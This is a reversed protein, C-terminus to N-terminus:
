ELSWSRWYFISLVYQANCIWCREFSITAGVIDRWPKTLVTQTECFVIWMAIGALSPKLLLIRMYLVKFDYRWIKFDVHWRLNVFEQLVCYGMSVEPSVFTQVWSDEWGGVRSESRCERSSFCMSPVTTFLLMSLGARVLLGHDRKQPRLLDNSTWLVYWRDHSQFEGWEVTGDTLDQHSARTM